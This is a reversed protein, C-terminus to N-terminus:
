ATAVAILYPADDAYPRGDWDGYLRVDDFGATRCLDAFEDARYIRVDYSGMSRETGDADLVAWRGEERMTEPVLRRRAVLTGGGALPRHEEPPVRGSQLAPVTIMTHMLFRGGPRLVRRFGRLVDLDEAPTFFGFSYFMNIVADVPELTPLHRMDAHLFTVPLEEAEARHRALNLFHQNIDVGTVRLGRRALEISHRGYGCPCDVVRAGAPLACLRLVGAVEQATRTDLRHEGEFFTQLSDDARLYLDGFFGGEEHWWPISPEPHSVM